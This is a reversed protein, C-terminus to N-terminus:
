YSSTVLLLQVGGEVLCQDTTLNGGGGAGFKVMGLKKPGYVHLFFFPSPWYRSM